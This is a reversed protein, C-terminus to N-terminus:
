SNSLRSAAIADAVTFRNEYIARGTIVGAIGDSFCDALGRVEDLSAVGGSAIVPIIARKAFQSYKAVEVGSETGDRQIDTYVIAAVGADRFLQAAEDITLQSTETWGKIALRGDRIDLSGLIRKPFRQVAQRVLEPKLFAASGISVYDAGADILREVAAIERVGGSFDLQCRVAARIAALAELHRPEGSVAGDLDVIHILEAGDSEFRRATAAPDSGYVTTQSM